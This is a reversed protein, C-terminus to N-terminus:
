YGLGYFKQIDFEYILRQEDVMAQLYEDLDDPEGRLSRYLALNLQPADPGNLIKTVCELGVWAWNDEQGIVVITSRPDKRLHRTRVRTATGSSWLKGDVLGVGVRVSHPTGDAKLTSMVAAHNDELFRGVDQPLSAIDM